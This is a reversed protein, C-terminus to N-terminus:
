VKLCGYLRYLKAFLVPSVRIMRVACQLLFTQCVADKKEQHVIQLIYDWYKKYKSRGAKDVKALLWCCTELVADGAYGTLAPYKEKIFTKEELRAEIASMQQEVNLGSSISGERIYYFYVPEDIMVCGSAKHLLTPMLYIDEYLKGEPFRLEMFLERRFLKMWVYEKDKERFFYKMLAEGRYVGSRIHEKQRKGEKEGDQICRYYSGMSMDTDEELAAKLLLEVANEPIADDSDVFMLWEGQMMDLGTNRAHSLGGNEQHIVQVRSDSCAYEDAMKGSLDTSGDDILIIDLKKYTQALVSDLCRRLYPAVNYIPIIVSVCPIKGEDM